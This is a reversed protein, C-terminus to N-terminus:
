AIRVVKRKSTSGHWFDHFEDLRTFRAGVDGVKRRAVRDLHVHLDLFAVFLADLDELADDDGATAATRALHEGHALDGAADSHLAHERQIRRRDVLDLHFAMAPDTARLEVVEPIEPAFRCADFLAALASFLNERSQASRARTASSEATSGRSRSKPKRAMAPVSSTPRPQRAPGTTAAQTIRSVSGVRRRTLSELSRMSKSWRRATQRWTSARARATATPTTSGTVMSRMLMRRALLSAMCSATSFRERRGSTSRRSATRRSFRSIGCIGSMSPSRLLTEM